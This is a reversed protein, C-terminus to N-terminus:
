IDAKRSFCKVVRHSSLNTPRKRGRFEGGVWAQRIYFTDRKKKENHIGEVEGRVEGRMRALIGVFM